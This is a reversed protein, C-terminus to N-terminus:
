EKIEPKEPTKQAEDDTQVAESEPKAADKATGCATLASAGLLAALSLAAFKMFHKKM